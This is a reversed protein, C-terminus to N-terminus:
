TKLALLQGPLGAQRAISVEDELGIETFGKAEIGSIIKKWRVDKAALFNTFAEHWDMYGKVDGSYECPKKVAKSDITALPTIYTGVEEEDDKGDNKKDNEEVNHGKAMTILSVLRDEMENLEAKVCRKVMESVSLEPEEPEPVATKLTPPTAVDFEAPGGVGAEWHEYGTPIPSM